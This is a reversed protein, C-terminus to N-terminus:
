RPFIKFLFFGADATKQREMFMWLNELIGMFIVM